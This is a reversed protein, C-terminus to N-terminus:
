IPKMQTVEPTRVHAATPPIVVAIIALEGRCHPCRQVANAAPVANVPPVDDPVANTDNPVDHVADAATSARDNRAHWDAVRCHPSCYRRNPNRTTVTIPRGCTACTRDTM